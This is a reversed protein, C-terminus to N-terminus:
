RIAVEVRPGGEDSARRAGVAEDRVHEVAAEVPMPRGFLWGQGVDCRLARLEERQAVEEVGEAVIHMGMAHGMGVVAACIARDNADGPLGMVFSRDIKVASVQFRKLYALSSYGTGFDDIVTAVRMAALALLTRQVADVDHVLSSETLEVELGQGPLGSEALAARVDAVIDASRLHAASVNVCVRVTRGAADNWARADRCARRMVFRDIEVILGAQEAVPIFQVPSIYRGDPLPWRVLAEFADVRGDSLRVLPQYHVTLVGNALAARLDVDMRARDQVELLLDKHFLRVQGTGSAKAAHMAIDANRLMDGPWDADGPCLSAGVSAGLWVHRRGFTYPRGVADTVADALAVLADESSVAEALLVFEDGGLRYVRGTDAAIRCLRAAVERLVHDGGAHGFTDNVQKFRDLDIFLLGVRREPGIGELHEVLAARNGVNTLVDAHVLKELEAERTRLATVTDDIRAAMNNLSAGLTAFEGEGVMELRADLEGRAVRRAFTALSALPTVLAVHMVALTGVVFAVLAVVLAGLTSRAVSAAEADERALDYEMYLMGARAWPSEPTEKLDAPEFAAIWRGDHRGFPVDSVQLTHKRAKLATTVAARDLHPVVDQLFRGKWAFRTSVSVRGDSEVLALATLNRDLGSIAFRQELSALDGSQYADWSARSLRGADRLVMESAHDLNRELAGQYAGWQGAAVAVAGMVAGLVAIVVRTPVVRV